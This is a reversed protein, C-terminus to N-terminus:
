KATVAKRAERATAAQLNAVQERWKQERAVLRKQEALKDPSLYKMRLEDREKTLQRKDNDCATQKQVIKRQQEQLSTLSRAKNDRTRIIMDWTDQAEKVGGKTVDM